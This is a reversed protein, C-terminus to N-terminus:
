RTPAIVVSRKDFRDAVYGAYGSFLIYPAVFVISSLSLLAAYGQGVLALNAATLSV